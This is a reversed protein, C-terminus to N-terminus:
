YAVKQKRHERYGCISCRRSQMFISRSGDTKAADTNWQSWRHTPEIHKGSAPDKEVEENHQEQEPSLTCSPTEDPSAKMCLALGACLAFAFLALGALIWFAVM